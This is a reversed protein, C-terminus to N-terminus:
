GACPLQQADGAPRLGVRDSGCPRPLGDEQQKCYAAASSRFRGGACVGTAPHRRAAFACGQEDVTTVDLDDSVVFVHNPSALVSSVEDYGTEENQAASAANDFSLEQKVEEAIAAKLEPSIPTTAEAQLTDVQDSDHSDSAEADASDVDDDVLAEDTLAEDAHLQYATALTEGLVYDTLWFAAGPYVPYATFYPYPGVYWPAGMWGFTFRVPAAWPYFAWGYFGPAYFAPTVLRELRVGAYTYSLYNRSIISHNIMSTRQIFSRNGIVVEREVYGSHPGSSVLRSNDARRSIITREGHAGRRVELNSTRLSSVRGKRDFSVTKTGDRYSSITGDSRVGYHRGGAANLTLRGNPHVTVDGSPLPRKNIGSRRSRASNVQQVVSQSGERTLTMSGSSTRGSVANGEPVHYASGSATHRQLTTRASETAPKPAVAEKTPEAAHTKQDRAQQKQAKKENKMREKEQRAQEKQRKQQQKAEEKQRNAQEKQAKQDQKTNEKQQRADEKQQQQQQKQQVHEQERSPRTTPQPRSAEPSSQTTPFSQSRNSSPSEVNSLAQRQPAPATEQQPAPASQRRPAPQSRTQAPRPASPTYSPMSITTTRRQQAQIPGVSSVTLSALLVLYTVKEHSTM